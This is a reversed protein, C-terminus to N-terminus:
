DKKRLTLMRPGGPYESPARTVEMGMAELLMLLVTATEEQTLDHSHMNQYQNAWSRTESSSAEQPLDLTM